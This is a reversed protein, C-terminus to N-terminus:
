VIFGKGGCSTCKFPKFTWSDLPLELTYGKGKCNPCQKKKKDKIKPLWPQKM